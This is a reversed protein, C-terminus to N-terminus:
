DESSLVALALAAIMLAIDRFTIIFLSFNSLVIGALTLAAAIAVYRVYIGVLLLVALLLELMSFFMLLVRSNFHETLLRPLYGVWESPQLFSSIAAYLFVIALAVRLLLAAGKVRDINPVKMRLNYCLGYDFLAAM